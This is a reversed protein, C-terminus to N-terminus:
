ECCSTASSEEMKLVSGLVVFPNEFDLALCIPRNVTILSSQNGLSEFQLIFNIIIIGEARHDFEGCNSKHERKNYRLPLANVLQIHLVREKM